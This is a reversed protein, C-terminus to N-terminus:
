AASRCAADSDRNADLMLRESGAASGCDSTHIDHDRLRFFWDNEFYVCQGAHSLGAEKRFGSCGCPEGVLIEALFHDVKSERPEGSM